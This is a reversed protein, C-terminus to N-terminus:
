HKVDLVKILLSNAHSFNDLQGRIDYAWKMGHFLNNRLRYVIILLASVIDAVDSKSGNIVSEVLEQRDNGRFNLGAFNGTFENNHFYRTQFYRLHEEFPEPSLKGNDKWLAVKTIIKGTSANTDLCRAEFLSWLLIFHMIADREDKSLSEYGAENTKLWEAPTMQIM